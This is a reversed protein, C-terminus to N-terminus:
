NCDFTKQKPQPSAADDKIEVKSTPAQLVFPLFDVSPTGGRKVIKNRLFDGRDIM